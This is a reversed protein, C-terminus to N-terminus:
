DLKLLQSRLTHLARVAEEPTVVSNPLLMEAGTSSELASSTSSSLRELKSIIMMLNEFTTMGPNTELSGMIFITKRNLTDSSLIKRAEQLVPVTPIRTDIVIIPVTDILRDVIPEWRAWTRQGSEWLTRDEYMEPYGVNLLHVLRMPPRVERAMERYFPTNQRSSAGLLLVAPPCCLYALVFPPIAVLLLYPIPPVWDPFYIRGVAIAFVVPSLFLPLLSRTTFGIRATQWAINLPVYGYVKRAIYWYWFGVLPALLGFWDALLVGIGSIQVDIGAIVTALMFIGLIALALSLRKLYSRVDRHPSFRAQRLQRAAEEPTSPSPPKQTLIIALDCAFYLGFPPAILLWSYNLITSMTTYDILFFYYAPYLVFFICLSVFGVQLPAFVLFLAVFAAVRGGSPKQSVFRHGFSKILFALWALLAIVLGVPDMPKM